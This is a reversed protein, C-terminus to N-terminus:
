GRLTVTIQLYLRQFYHLNLSPMLTRSQDLSILTRMLFPLSVLVRKSSLARARERKRERDVLWFCSVEGSVLEAQIKIKSKQRWLQSVPIDATQTSHGHRTTM